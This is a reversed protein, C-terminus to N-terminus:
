LGGAGNGLHTINEALKCSLTEQENTGLVYTPIPAPFFVM